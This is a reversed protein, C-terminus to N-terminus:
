PRGQALLDRDSGASLRRFACSSAGPKEGREDAAFLVECDQSATRFGSKGAGSLEDQNDTLGADAFGPQNFLKAALQGLPWMRPDFPTRRLQQLVRREMRDEPPRARPEATRLDRWLQPQGLEFRDEGCDLEIGRCVSGQKRRQDVDRNRMLAQWAERRLFNTAPLQRRHDFPRDGAGAVLRENEDKLVQLPEVRRRDIEHMREAIAARLRGNEKQRRGPKFKPRGPAACGCWLTM